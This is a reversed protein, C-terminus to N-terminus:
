AAFLFHEGERYARPALLARIEERAGATGVACVLLAEGPAPLSEERLVPRGRAVTKRRDVDFFARPRRGHAELERALRKGTPGAGWVDFVREKLPGRALYHARLRFM